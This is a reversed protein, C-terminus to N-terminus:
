DGHHRGVQAAATMGNRSDMATSEGPFRLPYREEYPASLDPWWEQPIPRKSAVMEGGVSGLTVWCLWEPDDRLPFDERYHTGRSETRFLAARLKMEANLVMSRTEHAKRLEHPDRAYLKPVLHDRFFEVNTLAAQLRDAKKIALVYYPALTNRLMQTTWDPSFGGRRLAPAQASATLEAVLAPDPTEKEADKAFRAAGLGAREGTVAASPIGWGGGPYSAGIHHTGCSEGATFLGPLSSACDSDVPWVGEGVGGYGLGAGGVMYRPGPGEPGPGPGDTALPARGAHAEFEPTIDLPGLRHIRGGEANIMARGMMRGAPRIMGGYGVDAPHDARTEHTDIFEKGAIEVGARYAMAVGDGTVSAIPFGYPKFSGAGTCLVTAKARFVHTAEDTTSVGVAGLARGGAVILETIMVRDIIPIGRRLVERRLVPSLSGFTLQVAEIGGPANFNSLVNGQDDRNFAVGWALLEEFVRKSQLIVAQTWTRNNLYEGALAVEEMWSELDHGKTLPDFVMLGRPFPTSGSRSVYGKDVMLVEAGQERARIAAFCGAMGGGVVLVDTERVVEPWHDVQGSV